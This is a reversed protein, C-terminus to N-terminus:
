SCKMEPDVGKISLDYIKYKGKRLKSHKNLIRMMLNLWFVFDLIPMDSAEKTLAILRFRNVKDEPLSKLYPCFTAVNKVM